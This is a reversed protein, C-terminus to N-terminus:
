AEGATPALKHCATILARIAALYADGIARDGAYGDGWHERAEDLTFWQCGAAIMWRDGHRVAVARYGRPDRVFLDVIGRADHLNARTLNSDSLDAGSLDAGSLDALALNVRHLDCGSLNSGSLDAGFLNSGSLDVGRLDVGSLNVGRLDVGSLNVGIFSRRGAAYAALLEDRTM